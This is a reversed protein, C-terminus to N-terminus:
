AIPKPSIAVSEGSDDVQDGAYLPQGGGLYSLSEDVFVEGTECSVYELYWDTRVKWQPTFKQTALNPASGNFYVLELEVLALEEGRHRESIIRLAQGADLPTIDEGAAEFEHWGVIVQAIGDVTMYVHIGEVIAKQWSVSEIRAIDKYHNSYVFGHSDMERAVANLIDNSAASSMQSRLARCVSEYNPRQLYISPFLEGMSKKIYAFSQDLSLQIPLNQLSFIINDMLYGADHNTVTVISTNEYETSAIYYPYSNYTMQMTIETESEMLKVRDTTDYNNISLTKETVVNYGYQELYQAYSIDYLYGIMAESAKSNGKEVSIGYMNCIEEFGLVAGARVIASPISGQAAQPLVFGEPFRINSLTTIDFSNGAANDSPESELSTFLVQGDDQKRNCGAAFVLFFCLLCCLLKKAM